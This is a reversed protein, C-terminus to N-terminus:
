IFLNKFDNVKLSPHACKIVQIMNLISKVNQIIFNKELDFEGSVLLNLMYNCAEKNTVKNLKVLGIFQDIEVVKSKEPSMPAKVINEESKEAIL